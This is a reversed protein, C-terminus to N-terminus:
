KAVIVKQSGSGHSSTWSLIYIGAQLNQHSAWTCSQGAALHGSFVVTLMKGSMDLLEFHYFGNNEARIELNDVFPNPNVSVSASQNQLEDVGVELTEFTLNKINSIRLYDTVKFPIEWVYGYDLAPTGQFLGDSTIEM